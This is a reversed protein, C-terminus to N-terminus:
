RTHRTALPLAELLKVGGFGAMVTLLLPWPANGLLGQLQASAFTVFPLTAVCLAPAAVAVAVRTLFIETRADEAHDAIRRVMEQVFTPPPGAIPATKVVHSLLADLRDNSSDNGNM